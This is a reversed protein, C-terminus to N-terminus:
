GLSDEKKVEDIIKEFFEKYIALLKENEAEFRSVLIPQTNSARVLGWGHEFIARVGDIDLLDTVLPEKRDNKHNRIIETVKSVVRFKAPDPCDIRIEPTAITKPLDKLLESLGNGGKEFHESLIRLVELAAHIADDFGFFDEAFFLHGSMEGALLAKEEKMKNKILSHGTKWMIGNGGAKKISDYMRQSCKVEGIISCGPHRSLIDRALLVMIEDGWLIKGAEDVVGLRDSDGDFAVGLDAKEERVKEILKELNKPITPDPHHNPFNGDVTCFLEIVRCGLGRFLEPAVLSATGNGADIVVSLSRKGKKLSGHRQFQYKIYASLIDYKDLTGKGSIFDEKEVIKRIEQIQEGFLTTKKHCLKFGNFEKPNHSGTIMVAGDVPLHFLSYYVLPTPCVGLDLVEVGSEILGSVINEFLRPSSLRIDRGVALRPSKKGDKQSVYKAFGRGLAIVFESPLDSEVVGRIDYEKFVHPNQIKM